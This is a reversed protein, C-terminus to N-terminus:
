AARTSYWTHGQVAGRTCGVGWELWFLRRKRPRSRTDTAADDNKTKILPAKKGGQLFFFIFDSHKTGSILVASRRVLTSPM